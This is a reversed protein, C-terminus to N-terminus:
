GGALLRPVLGAARLADVAARIASLREDRTASLLVAVPRRSVVADPLFVSAFDAGRVDASVGRARLLGRVMLLSRAHQESAV